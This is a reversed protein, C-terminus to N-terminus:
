MSLGGTQFHFIKAKLRAIKYLSGKNLGFIVDWTM